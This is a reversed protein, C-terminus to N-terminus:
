KKNFFATFINEEDKLIDESLEERSDTQKDSIGEVLKIPKGKRIYIYSPAYIRKENTSVKEGTGDSIFYETLLSDFLKLLKKYEPTGDITKVIKKDKIEYKDRFIENGDDDWIDIYYITKVNMKKSVEISKEIVSRCWPCLEDGIYLYFTEKNNIKEIITKSDIKKYPNNKDISVSRHTKGVKNVVGNLKEYSKKFELGYKTDKKSCGTLIIISIIFVFIRKM